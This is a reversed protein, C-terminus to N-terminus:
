LQREFSRFYRVKRCHLGRLGEMKVDVEVHFLCNAHMANNHQEPESVFLVPAQWLTALVSERAEKLAKAKRISLPQMADHLM